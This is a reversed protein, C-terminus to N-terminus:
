IREVFAERGLERRSMNGSALLQREVVMQTAIGAHDTGPLWLAAKGRMREFRALVDQLTHNLAHGIHLSGTVNPPPIVMCFREADPNRALVRDPSFAGAAEWRAYLRPEASKPDFTKELM